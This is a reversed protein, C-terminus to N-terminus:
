GRLLTLVSSPLQNAQALMSTGAQQLIQLKSFNTMESAMDTDRIRSQSASLNEVAVGLNAITSTLRNQFAGIQSRTGTVNTLAADISALASAANTGTIMAAIGSLKLAASSQGGISVNIQNYTAGNYGVHFTFGASQTGDLLNKSGYVTSSAIRDIEALAQVVEKGIADRSAQDNAGANASQVALDRVRQLLNTTENLSGEATQLLSIGDQANQTAVKFGAVQSKLGESISLGAADDAARNIRLGSSLRELSKSLSSSTSNLNSYANMAEVNTNIRLGMIEEM